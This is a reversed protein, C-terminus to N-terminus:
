KINVQLKLVSSGMTDTSDRLTLLLTGEESYVARRVTRGSMQLSLIYRGPANIDGDLIDKVFLEGLGNIYLIKNNGIYVPSSANLSEDLIITAPDSRNLVPKLVSKRIYGSTDLWIFTDKGAFTYNFLATDTGGENCLIKEGEAFVPYINPTTEISILVPEEYAGNPIAFVMGRYEVPSDGVQIPGVYKPSHYGSIFMSASAIPFPADILDIIYLSSEAMAGGEPKEILLNGTKNHKGYDGSGLYTMNRIPFTPNDVSEYIKVGESQDNIHKKWISWVGAVGDLRTYVFFGNGIYEVVAVPEGDTLTNENSVNGVLAPFADSHVEQYRDSGGGGGSDAWVFDYPDDSGKSLVQDTIGGGLIGALIEIARQTDVVPVGEASPALHLNRDKYSIGVNDWNEKDLGAGFDTYPNLGSCGMTMISRNFALEGIVEEPEVKFSMYGLTCERFIIKYQFSYPDPVGERPRFTIDCHLVVSNIFESDEIQRWNVEWFSEGGSLYEITSNLVRFVGYQTFKLPIEARGRIECTEFYGGNYTGGHVSSFMVMLPNFNGMFTHEMFWEISPYEGWQLQSHFAFLIVNETYDGRVFKSNSAVLGCPLNKMPDPDVLPKNFEELDFVCKFAFILAIGYGQHTVDEWFGTTTRPDNGENDPVLSRWITLQEGFTASEDYTYTHMGEPYATGAQYGWFDFPDPMASNSLDLKTITCGEVVTSERAFDPSGFPMFYMESKLVGTLRTNHGKISIGRRFTVDQDFQGSPLEIVWPNEMHPNQTLIYEYADDFSRYLKGPIDAPDNPEVRVINTTVAVGSGVGGMFIEAVRKTKIKPIEVPVGNVLITKKDQSDLVVMRDNDALPSPKTAKEDFRILDFFPNSGSM